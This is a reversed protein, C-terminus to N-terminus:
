RRQIEVGLGVCPPVYYLHVNVSSTFLTSVPSPRDSAKPSCTAAPAPPAAPAAPTAAACLGSEGGGKKEAKVRVTHLSLAAPPPLDALDKEDTDLLFRLLQHDQPEKGAGAALVSGMGSGPSGPAEKKIDADKSADVPSSDQLLRHLIKHRETLTSHSAPCQAAPPPRNQSAPSPEHDAPGAAGGSSDLLQNLKPNSVAVGKPEDIGPEPPKAPPPRAPSSSPTPTQRPPLPSPLSFASGDGGSQQRALAGAPSHLSPTPPSFPHGSVRPSGALGPSGRLPRPSMFSTPTATLPSGLPSPSNVQQPPGGRSSTLYSPPTSAPPGPTPCAGNGNNLHLGLDSSPQLAPSRAPPASPSQLSPTTNEQSSATNHERLSVWFM